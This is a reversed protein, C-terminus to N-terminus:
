YVSWGGDILLHQGTIYSSADSALGQRWYRRALRYGWTRSPPTM